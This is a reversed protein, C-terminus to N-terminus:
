AGRGRVYDLYQRLMILGELSGAIMKLPPAEFDPHEGNLWARQNEPKSFMACLSRHIALLHLLAEHNPSFPPKGLPVAGDATWKRVTNPHLRLLEAVKAESLDWESMLHRLASHVAKHATASGHAPVAAEKSPINIAM